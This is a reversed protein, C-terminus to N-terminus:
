SGERLVVGRTVRKSHWPYDRGVNVEVIGNPLLRYVVSPEVGPDGRVLGAETLIWRGGNLPGLGVSKFGGRVENFAVAMGQSWAVAGLILFGSVSALCPGPKFEQSVPIGLGKIRVSPGKGDSGGVSPDSSPCRTSQDKWLALCAQCHM